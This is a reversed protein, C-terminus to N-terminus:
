GGAEPTSGARIFMVPRSSRSLVSLATSGLFFHRLASEGHTAMCILDVDFEEAVSVIEDSVTWRQGLRRVIPRVRPGSEGLGVAVSGVEIAWQADLAKLEEERRAEDPQVWVPAPVQYVRLLLVEGDAKKALSMVPEFAQRSAESGDYTVLLRIM